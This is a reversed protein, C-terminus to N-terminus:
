SQNPPCSEHVDSFNGPSSMSNSSISLPGHQSPGATPGSTLPSGRREPGSMRMHIIRFLRTSDPCAPWARSSRCSDPRDSAEGKPIVALCRYKLHCRRDAQKIILYPVQIIGHDRVLWSSCCCRGGIRELKISQFCFVPTRSGNNRLIGLGDRGRLSYSCSM